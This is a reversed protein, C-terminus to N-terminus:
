EERYWADGNWGNFFNEAPGVIDSSYGSQDPTFALMGMPQDEAIKTFIEALTSKLEEESSATSAQNFLEKANWSPYYGYPNYFSDKIFFVSGTTPNLPYTNLGYVLSMDWGNQSTAKTRPGANYNGNSWELSDANDPIEQQWYKNAFQAGQIAEVRVDIGANKSFEQAVFEATAKETNQGASHFLNLSVQDGEPNVLTDGQYAYDTDAIAEKIRSQTAEKGYLDGDPNGFEAVPEEPYWKSWRPQWTYEPEALGRYVGKVLRKKDVACGLARRFKRKRFLNGPGTNWGNARMNYVLPVNYPQPIIEVNVSDLDRFKSVRNPPIAAYDTDGTELAGLRSSQEEVVRLRYTDFYPAKEFLEFEDTAERMFFEDNRTFRLENGRNWEELKYPGLNGTFSLNNLEEDQKLGEADEENVYPELLGKPVPYLIPDYTEPYLLNAEPLEIQIEYEGTQQISEVTDSGWSDSDSTATWEAQQLEQVQYVFDEATVEGYPDSFKMNDRVSAVWVKGGDDTELSEWAQGLYRTGPKFGYTTLLTQAIAGAATNETNYIGNLTEIPSSIVSTYTGGVEPLDSRPTPTDTETGLADGDTETATGTETAESGGGSCGALAAAGGIGM